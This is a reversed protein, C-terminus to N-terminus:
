FPWLLFEVLLSSILVATRDYIVSKVSKMYNVSFHLTSFIASGAIKKGREGRPGLLRLVQVRSQASVSSNPSIIM